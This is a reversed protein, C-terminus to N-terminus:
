VRYTYKKEPFFLCHLLVTEDLIKVELQINILSKLNM